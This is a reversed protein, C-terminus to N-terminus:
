RRTRRTHCTRMWTTALLCWDRCANQAGTRALCLRTCSVPAIRCTPWRGPIWRMRAVSTLARRVWNHSPVQMGLYRVLAYDQADFQPDYLTVPCTCPPHPQTLMSYARRCVEFGHQLELLLALQFQAANSQLTGIGLCFIRQIPPIRARLAHVIATYAASRRVPCITPRLLAYWRRSPKCQRSLRRSVRMNHM